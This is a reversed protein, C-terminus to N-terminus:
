PRARCIINIKLISLKTLVRVLKTFKEVNKM